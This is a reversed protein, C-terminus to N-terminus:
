KNGVLKILMDEYIKLKKLLALHPDSTLYRLGLGILYESAKLSLYLKKHIRNVAEEPSKAERINRILDDMGPNKDCVEQLIKIDAKVKKLEYEINQDNQLISYGISHSLEINSTLTIENEFISLESTTKM